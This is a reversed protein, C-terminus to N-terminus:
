TLAYQDILKIPEISVLLRPAPWMAGLTNEGAHNQFEWIRNRDM